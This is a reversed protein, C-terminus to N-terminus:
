KSTRHAGNEQLRKESVLQEAERLLVNYGAWDPGSVRARLGPAEPLAPKMLSKAKELCHRAEDTRGGKAHAMTMGLWNQNRGNDDWDAENSEQFRKIAEGIQGARLHALGLAHLYWPNRADGVAKQAWQILAVPEFGSKVTLGACRALVFDAFHPPHTEKIKRELNALLDRYGAEDGSMVLAAAAELWEDTIPRDHIM